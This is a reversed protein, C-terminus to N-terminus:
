LHKAPHLEEPIRRLVAIYLERVRGLAYRAEDLGPEEDELGPYRFVTAFRSYRAVERLLPELEADEVLVGLRTLSHIRPPPEGSNFRLLGKLCKEAAQQVLFLVVALYDWDPQLIESAVRLDARAHDLWDQVDSNTM